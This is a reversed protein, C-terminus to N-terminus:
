VATGAEQADRATPATFVKEATIPLSTIRVGVADHVANAVAPAVAVNALEGASKAGFPGGGPHDALLVVRIPPVDPMTPMKYDGLNATTIVGDHITLEEMLAQGLGTVFGGVLQGRLALPNIVTGIDAIFLCDTVSVQGTRRDVEVEVCCAYTCHLGAEHEFHGDVRVDGHRAARELQELVPRGPALAELREALADAGALAAGGAVPTLRSGGAGLDFPAEDTTGRRVTIHDPAVGLRQAIVRQMVTHAGGGQDAVGTLVEIRADGGVTLTLDATLGGEPNSRAGLSM